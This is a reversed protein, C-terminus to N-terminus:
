NDLRWPERLAAERYAAAEMLLGTANEWWEISDRRDKQMKSSLAYGIARRAESIYYRTYDQLAYREENIKLEAHPMRGDREETRGETSSDKVVESSIGAGGERNRFFASLSSRNFSRVELQKYKDAM